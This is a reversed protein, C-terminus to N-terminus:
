APRRKRRVTLRVAAGAGLLILAWAIAGLAGFGTIPLGGSPMTPAATADPPAVNGTTAVAALVGVTVTAAPAEPREVSGVRVSNVAAGVVGLQVSFTLV